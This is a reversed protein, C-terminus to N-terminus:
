DILNYDLKGERQPSRRSCTLPTIRGEWKARPSFSFSLSFLIPYLCCWGHRRASGVDKVDHRVLHGGRQQGDMVLLGGDLSGVQLTQGLIADDEIIGVAIRGQTRGRAEGHDGALQRGLDPSVVVCCIEWRVDRGVCMVQAVLAVVRRQRALHMEATGVLQM